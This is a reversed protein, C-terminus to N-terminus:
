CRIYPPYMWPAVASSEAAVQSACSWPLLNQLRAKGAFCLNM